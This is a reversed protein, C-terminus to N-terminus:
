MQVLRVQEVAVALHVGLEMQHHVLAGRVQHLHQEAQELILQHVVLVALAVM